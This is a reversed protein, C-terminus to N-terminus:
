LNLGTKVKVRIFDGEVGPQLAKAGYPDGVSAVVGKGDADSKLTDDEDCGGSGLELLCVDTEQYVKIPDGAIAANASGVGPAGRSGEDSIGIVEEDADAELVHFAATQDLKVFRSPRINGNSIFGQQEARAM